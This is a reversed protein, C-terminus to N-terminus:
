FYRKNKYTMVMKACKCKNWALGIMKLNRAEWLRFVHVETKCKQQLVCRKGFSRKHAQATVPTNLTLWFSTQSIDVRQQFTKSLSGPSNPLGYCAYTMMISATYSRPPALHLLHKGLIEAAQPESGHSFWSLLTVSRVQREHHRPYM